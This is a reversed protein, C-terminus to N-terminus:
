ASDARGVEACALFREVLPDNARASRACLGIHLQPLSDLSRLLLSQRFGGAEGVLRPVIAVGLGLAVMAAMAEHGAVRAYVVPEQPLMERLWAETIDRTVGREPLIWPEASLRELLAAEDAHRLARSLESRRPLCLELPSRSVERFRLAEPLRAPRAVVAVDAEGRHVRALGDAQDGTQLRVEVGPWRARYAQMIPSLLRYSATVSCYIRLEGVLADADRLSHQLARWETTAREAYAHLRQAASSPRMGRRDRDFLSQGLSDELRAITRSVASVSMHEQAATRTFSLTAYVTLFVQLARQDM